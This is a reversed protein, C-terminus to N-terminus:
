QHRLRGRDGEATGPGCGLESAQTYNATAQSWYINHGPSCDSASSDLCWNDGASVCAAGSSASGNGPGAMNALSYWGVVSPLPLQILDVTDGSPVALQCAVAVAYGYNVGSDTPGETQFQYNCEGYIASTNSLSGWANAGPGEAGAEAINFALLAFFALLVSVSYM